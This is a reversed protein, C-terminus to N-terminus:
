NDEITYQTETIERKNGLSNVLLDFNFIFGTKEDIGIEKFELIRPIVKAKGTKLKILDNM